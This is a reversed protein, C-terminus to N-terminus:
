SPLFQFIYNTLKKKREMKQCINIKNTFSISNIIKKIKEKEKIM